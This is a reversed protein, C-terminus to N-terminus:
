PKRARATTARELKERLQQNAAVLRLFHERQLSLLVCDTLTRVSATRPIREMLAVEGFHDGDELIALSKTVNGSPETRFVSVRGRVIIYFKDGADGQQVVPRHPAFHETAFLGAVTSLSADDLEALIPVTRLRAADVRAQAGDESLSFGAQKNWLQAYLGNLKLLEAHRGQEALRGEHFVFIRDASPAAELRHTVTVVTRGQSLRDLSQNIAAATAPDLASTAEDLLLIAPDALVARAIAVRQRQGGSLKGGREGAVTDYGDPMKLIVDHIEAAKAAAEIEADTANHRGMRINERITTNFLFNEQLVVSMHQRLSDQTVSRLNRGDVCVSGAAPDYFRMLLNLITSKGCGSSGVLLVSQSVPITMTVNDLNLRGASYGFRVETLAIERSPRQLPTADPVDTVEPKENLLTEIREMGVGAQLLQPLGWTLVSVSSMLEGLLLQFALLTGLTLADICVLFSGVGLMVLGFLSITAEPARDTLYTLFFARSAARYFDLMQHKFREILLGQLRFMKVVPQAQVNEQLVAAIQAQQEKMRHGAESARPEVWAETKLSLYLGLVAILALRWELAFLLGLCVLILVFQCLTSQVANTVANDVSALDTTFRATVEGMSVRGYFSVSLSQLHRFMAFRLDNLLKASFRAYLYDRAFDFGLATLEAAVLIALIVLLARLDHPILAYDTIFKTGLPLTATISMSAVMCVSLLLAQKRYPSAWRRLSRLFGLTGMSPAEEAEPATTSEPEKHTPGALRRQAEEEHQRKTALAASVRTRLLVADLPKSLHDIAGMEICRTVSEMDEATSIVIVPIHRLAHDAQLRRLCQFGDMVPMMLDLLIIDAPEECLSKLADRGNEAQKVSYGADTLSTSFLTRSIPDDDVVLVTSGPGDTSSM